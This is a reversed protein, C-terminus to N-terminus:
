TGTMLDCRQSDSCVVSLLGYLASSLCGRVGVKNILEPGPELTVQLNRTLRAPQPGDDGGIRMCGIVFDCWSECGRGRDLGDREEHPMLGPRKQQALRPMDLLDEPTPPHQPKRLHRLTPRHIQHMSHASVTDLNVRVNVCSQAPEAHPKRCCRIMQPSCVCCGKMKVICPSLM